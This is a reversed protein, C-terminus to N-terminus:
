KFWMKRALKEGWQFGRMGFSFRIFKLKFNSNSDLQKSIWSSWSGFGQVMGLRSRCAGYASDLVFQLLPSGTRCLISPIKRSIKMEEIRVWNEMIRKSGQNDSTRGIYAVLNLQKSTLDFCSLDHVEFKLEKYREIYKSNPYISALNTSLAM